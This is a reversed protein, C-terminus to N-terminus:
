KRVMADYVIGVWMDPPFAQGAWKPDLEQTPKAAIVEDRSKGQKVLAGIRDRATVLMDHYAQLGAKTSQPGHGPIIKTHQDALELARAAAKILGDLSGGARVDIFPYEGNFFTDGVHLVNAKRFLIFSDGDTHAPEVHIIRVEEGDLYLTMADTYTITPLAAAPSPPVTRDIHDLHQEASMKKRVNEHAVICAGAKSFTFFATRKIQQLRAIPVKHRVKQM